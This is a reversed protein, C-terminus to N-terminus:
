RAHPTLFVEIVAAITLLVVTCVAYAGTVRPRTAPNRRADLWAATATAVALYEVPLQPIYPLLRGQWRGLAVGISITNAGLLGLILGDGTLRSTRSSGFRTLALIFPLALVRVNTVVVAAIAGLTPHLTPHPATTGALAPWVSALATGAATLACLGAFLGPLEAIALPRRRDSGAPTPITLNATAM